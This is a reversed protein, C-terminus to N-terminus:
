RLPNGDPDTQVDAHPMDHGTVIARFRTRLEDRQDPTLPVDDGVRSPPAIASPACAVPNPPAVTLATRVRRLYVMSVAALAKHVYASTPGQIGLATVRCKVREKWEAQDDLLDPASRLLDTAIACLQRFSVVPKTTTRTNQEHLM